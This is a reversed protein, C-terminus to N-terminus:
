HPNESRARVALLFCLAALPLEVLTALALALGLDTGGTATLTDFWADCLLLTGGATAAIPLWDRQRLAGIATVLLSGALAVDFGAWAVDWNRAVHQPPLLVGLVAAWPVLAVAVIALVVGLRVNQRKDAVVVVGRVTASTYAV